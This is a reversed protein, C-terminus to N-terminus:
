CKSVQGDNLKLIQSNSNYKQNQSSSGLSDSFEQIEVFLPDKKVANEISLDSEQVHPPFTGVLNKPTSDVCKHTIQSKLLSNDVFVKRNRPSLSRTSDRLYSHVFHDLNKVPSQLTKMPCSPMSPSKPPLIGNAKLFLRDIPTVSRASISDFRKHLRGSEIRRLPSAPKHTSTASRKLRAGDGGFKEDTNPARGAVSVESRPLSGQAAAKMTDDGASATPGTKTANGSFGGVPTTTSLAKHLKDLDVELLNEM